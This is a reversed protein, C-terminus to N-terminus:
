MEITECIQPVLGLLIVTVSLTTLLHVCFMFRDFIKSASQYELAYLESLNQNGKLAGEMEGCVGKTLGDNESNETLDNKDIQAQVPGTM